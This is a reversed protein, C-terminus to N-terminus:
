RLRRTQRLDLVPQGAPFRTTGARYYDIAPGRYTSTLRGEERLILQVAPGPAWPRASFPLGLEDYVPDVMGGYWETFVVSVRWAVALPLLGYGALYERLGPAVGAAPSWAPAPAADREECRRLRAPSGNM